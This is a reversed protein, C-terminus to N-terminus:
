RLATLAQPATRKLFDLWQSVLFGPTYKELIAKQGLTVHQKRLEPNSLYTQINKEWDGSLFFPSMSEYSPISDAVVPVGLLLATLLRNNTKCRTFPNADIPILCLDQKEFQFPFHDRDWRIYLSPVPSPAIQADYLERNNSFVTLVIPIDRHVRELAPLIEILDLIGYRPNAMGANGFWCVRRHGDYQRWPNRFAHVARLWPHRIPADLADEIVTKDPHEIYGALEETSTTIFDALETMRLVQTAKKQLASTPEPMYTLNDCLDFVIKVGRSKLSRALAIDEDQYAKQFIVMCYGDRHEPRYIECPAGTERLHRVPLFSRLRASAIRIDDYFPKWAIRNPSKMM